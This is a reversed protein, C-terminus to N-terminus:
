STPTILEWYGKARGRPRWAQLFSHHAVPALRPPHEAGEIERIRARESPQRVGSGRGAGETWTRPETAAAVGPHGPLRASGSYGPSLWALAFPGTHPQAGCVDVHQGPGPSHSVPLSAGALVGPGAVEMNKPLLADRCDPGPGQARPLITGLPLCSAPSSTGPWLAPGLQREGGLYPFLSLSPVSSKKLHTEWEATGLHTKNKTRHAWISQPLFPPTYFPYSLLTHGLDGSPM